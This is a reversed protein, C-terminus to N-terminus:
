EREPAVSRPCVISRKDFGQQAVGKRSETDTQAAFFPETGVHFTASAWTEKVPMGTQPNKVDFLSGDTAYVNINPMSILAPSLSPFSSALAKDNVFAFLGDMSRFSEFLTVNAGSRLFNYSTPALAADYPHCVDLLNKVASEYQPLPTGPNLTFTSAFAMVICPSSAVSLTKPEQPQGVATALAYLVVYM